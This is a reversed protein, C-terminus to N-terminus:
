HWSDALLCGFSLVDVFSEGPPLVNQSIPIEFRLHQSSGHMILLRCYRAVELMVFSSSSDTLLMLLEKTSCM